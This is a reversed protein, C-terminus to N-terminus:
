GLHFCLAAGAVDVQGVDRRGRVEIPCGTSARMANTPLIDEEGLLANLLSSKGPSSPLPLTPTHYVPHLAGSARLCALDHGNGYRRRYEGAGTDGVVGITTRPMTARQQLAQLEGRWLASMQPGALATGRGAVAPANSPGAGAGSGGAAHCPLVPLDSCSLKQPWALRM